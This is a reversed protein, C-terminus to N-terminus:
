LTDLIFTLIPSYPSSGRFTTLFEKFKLINHITSKNHRPNPTFILHTRIDALLTSLGVTIIESSHTNLMSLLANNATVTDNSIHKFCGKDKKM